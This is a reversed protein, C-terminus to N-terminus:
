RNGLPNVETAPLEYFMGGPTTEILVHDVPTGTGAPAVGYVDVVKGIFEASYDVELVGLSAPTIIGVAMKDIFTDRVTTSSPATLLDLAAPIVGSPELSLGSEFTAHVNGGGDILQVVGIRPPQPQLRSASLVGTATLRTRVRDNVAIAM